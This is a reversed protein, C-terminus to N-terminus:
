PANAVTAILRGVAPMAYINVPAIRDSIAKKIIDNQGSIGSIAYDRLGSESRCRGVQVKILLLICSLLLM